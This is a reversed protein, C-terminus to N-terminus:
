PIFITTNNLFIAALAKSSKSHVRGAIMSLAIEICEEEEPLSKRSLERTRATLGVICKRDRSSDWIALLLWFVPWRAVFEEM